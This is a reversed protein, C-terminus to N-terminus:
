AAHEGLARPAALEMIREQTAEARDLLGTARGECMVLIRDALLLLEPLESSVLVIAVGAEKLQEILAYIEQKAGVDIGRTPEDLLLVRPATALWKGLVVKQQNGGSLGSVKQEPGTCRINLRAITEQALATERRRSAIGLRALRGQSPLAANARISFDLVLGTAKRDETVFAVGLNKAAEAGSITVPVGDLLLSGSREGDAVGFITELIETRGAGLLGGIGLVEGRSVAFGVGDIVRRPAAGARTALLSLDRVELAPRSSRAATGAHVESIARGVMARIIAVRTLGQAPATLVKRG